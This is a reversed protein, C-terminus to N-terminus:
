YFELEFNSYQCSQVDDDDDDKKNLAMDAILAIKMAFIWNRFCLYWIFVIFVSCLYGALWIICHINKLYCSLFDLVKEPIIESFIDKVSIVEYFLM